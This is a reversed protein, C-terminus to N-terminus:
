GSCPPCPLLQEGQYPPLDEIPQMLGRSAPTDPPRLDPLAIVPRTHAHLAGMQFRGGRHINGVVGRRKLYDLASMSPM